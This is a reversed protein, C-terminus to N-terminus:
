AVDPVEVSTVGMSSRVSVLFAGSKVFNKNDCEIAVLLIEKTGLLDLQYSHFVEQQQLPCCKFPTVM